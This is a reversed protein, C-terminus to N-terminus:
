IKRMDRRIGEYKGCIEEYEKMDGVYETVNKCIKKMYEVCKKM